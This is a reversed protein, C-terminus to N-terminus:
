AHAPQEDPAATAVGAPLRVTFRAGGGAANAAVVRGGHADVIAAVISLGLGAGARGRERGGESRWFRDFLADMDEAPLGPGHDRVELRVEEGESAVSVEIPTRPPTHVLANRILNGLVQRLQHADGL